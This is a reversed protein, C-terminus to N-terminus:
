EGARRRVEPLLPDETSKGRITLYTRYSDAYGTTKMGERVRGLYYYLLRCIGTPPNRTWSCRCLRAGAGICRDFESDAQTFQKAELYARGLDFRGIWTDLLTNADNLADIAQARNGSKLAILGEIIKAYARPEAQVESALDAALKQAKAIQGAEVFM